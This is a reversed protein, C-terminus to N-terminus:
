QWGRLLYNKRDDKTSYRDYIWNEKAWIKVGPYQTMSLAMQQTSFTEVQQLQRLSWWCLKRLQNECNETWEYWESVCNGRLIKTNEGPLQGIGRNEVFHHSRSARVNVIRHIVEYIVCIKLWHLFRLTFCNLICATNVDHLHFDNYSDRIDFFLVKKLRFIYKTSFQNCDHHHLKNWAEFTMYYFCSAKNCYLWILKM